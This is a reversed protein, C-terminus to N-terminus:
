IPSYPISQPLIPIISILMSVVIYPKPYISFLFATRFFILAVSAAHQGTADLAILSTGVTGRLYSAHPTYPSRIVIYEFGFEVM